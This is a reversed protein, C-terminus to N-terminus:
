NKSAAEREMRDAEVLGDIVVQESDCWGREMALEFGERSIPVMTALHTDGMEGEPCCESYAKTFAFGDKPDELIEGFIVFGMRSDAAFCDGRRMNEQFPRIRSDAMSKREQVARMAEEWSDFAEFEM